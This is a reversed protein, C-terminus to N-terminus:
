DRLHSTERAKVPHWFDFGEREAVCDPSCLFGAANSCSDSFIATIGCTKSEFRVPSLTVDFAAPLNEPTKRQLAFACDPKLSEM